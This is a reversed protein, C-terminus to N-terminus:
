YIFLSVKNDRDMNHQYLKYNHFMIREALLRLRSKM